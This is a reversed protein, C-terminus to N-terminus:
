NLSEVVCRNRLLSFPIKLILIISLIILLTKEKTRKFYTVDISINYLQLTQKNTQKFASIEPVVPEFRFIRKTNFLGNISSPKLSYLMVNCSHPAFFYHFIHFFRPFNNM